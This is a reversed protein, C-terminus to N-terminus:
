HESSDDTQASSLGGQDTSQSLGGASSPDAALSVAGAQIDKKKEVTRITDKFQKAKSESDWTTPLLKVGLFGLILGGGLFGILQYITQTKFTGTEVVGMVIFAFMVFCVSSVLFFVVVAITSLVLKIANHRQQVKLRDLLNTM